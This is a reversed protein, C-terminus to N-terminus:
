VFVMSKADVISNGRIIARRPHRQQAVRPHGIFISLLERPLKSSIILLMASQAPISMSISGPPLLHYKISDEETRNIMYYRRLINGSVTLITFLQCIYTLPGLFGYGSFNTNDNQVDEVVNGKVVINEIKLHAMTHHLLVIGYKKKNSVSNRKIFINKGVGQM